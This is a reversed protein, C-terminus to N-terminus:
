ALLAAGGLLLEAQAAPLPRAILYGQVYDCGLGTLTELQAATEVGEAVVELGLAHGLRVITEVISVTRAQRPIASVLSRDIKITDLPYHSLYSLSSYGTGFDDLALRVGMARIRELTVVLTDWHNLLVSETIDLELWAPAVGAEDLTHQLREIFRADMLEVGSVNVSIRLPHAAHTRAWDRMQECAQRLVWRGIEGILGIEEAVPIVMAPLLLGRRPHRWRVLAEFGAIRGTRTRALPQFHVCLEGAQLAGQLEAQLALAALGGAHMPEPFVAHRRGGDKKARYMAIDADRLLDEALEYRGPAAVLGISCPSYLDFAGLHVPEALAAVVREAVGEGTPLDADDLLIAFEDGGVRALVDQPRVCGSLRRAVVRLLEDGVRHGLSDNVVKFRDLDIFLLAFRFPPRSRAQELVARLRDMLFARNRLRTLDDHFATYLLQAEVRKREEIEAELARNQAEALRGRLAAEEAAKRGTIDRQISVWHTIHRQEDWVPVISIEVWFAAGDRRYNLLEREIPEGERLAARILDLSTRDTDPGHLLRPNQGAVEEDTYGTMRTFAANVYLIRPGPVDTPTGETILIADGANVVVSELLRLRDAPTVHPMPMDTAADGAPWAGAIPSPDDDAMHVGESM